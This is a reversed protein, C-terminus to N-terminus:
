FGWLSLVKRMRNRIEDPSLSHQWGTCIDADALRVMAVHRQQGLGVVQELPGAQIREGLARFRDLSKHTLAAIPEANEIGRSEVRLKEGTASAMQASVVFEVGEM